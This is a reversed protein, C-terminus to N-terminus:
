GEDVLLQDVGRDLGAHAAVDLAHDVVEIIQASKQGEILRLTLPDQPEPRGQLIQGVIWGILAACVLVGFIIAYRRGHVMVQDKRRFENERRSTLTLAEEEAEQAARAAAEAQEREKRARQTLEEIESIRRRCDERSHDVQSKLIRGAPDNPPLRSVAGATDNALTDLSREIDHARENARRVNDLSREGQSSAQRCRQAAGRVREAAAQLQMVGQAQKVGAMAVRTEDRAQEAQSRRQQLETYLVSLRDQEGRIQEIMAPTQATLQDVNLREMPAANQLAPQPTRGISVTAFPNAPVPPRRAGIARTAFRDDPEARAVVTLSLEGCTLRQERDPPIRTRVEYALEQENLLTPTKGLLTVSWIGDAFDFRLHKRSWCLTSPEGPSAHEIHPIPIELGTNKDGEMRGLLAGSRDPDLQFVHTPNRPVGSIQLRM